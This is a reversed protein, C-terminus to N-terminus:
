REALRKMIESAAFLAQQDADDLRSIAERLWAQKADREVKRVKRGEETLDVIMQRGDTPHPRRFVLGTEELSAVVTGMSQPKMGEARALDSTTASGKKDLRSMVSAQTLSIDTEGTTARVRRVLVGLAQLLEGVKSNLEEQNM